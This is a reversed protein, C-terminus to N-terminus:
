PNDQLFEKAARLALEITQDMDIYKFMGLRGVFTVKAEAEARTGYLALLENGHALNVPYMPDEGPGCERSTEYTITSWDHKEWPTFHKHEISRTRNTTLGCYNIHACGQLDGAGHKHHFDMTRYPLWGYCHTFWDDIPGSYFVHDYHVAERNTFKCNLHLPVGSLLREIIPTYGDLPIGQYPHNFYNDDYTFRVPLRQFVSAPLEVPERGWQKKTYGKLFANYLERGVTQLAQEEANRPTDTLGERQKKIFEEAERPGMQRGFFQNITHLNIPMSFITGDHVAKVRHTYPGFAGFQQIYDWVRDNKTHFIHPGYKHVMVGTTDDRYTYCNGGVHPRGEFVEVRHYPSLERALVAGSFGAGVIAIKM